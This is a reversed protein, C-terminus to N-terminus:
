RRINFHIEYKSKDDGAFPFFKRGREFVSPDSERFTKKLYKYLDFGERLNTFYAEEGHQVKFPLYVHFRDQVGGKDPKDIQHGSTTHIIYAYNEFKDKAEDITLSGDDYDLMIGFVGEYNKTEGHGTYGEKSESLLPSGFKNNSYVHNQFLDTLTQQDDINDLDFSQVRFATKNNGESKLRITADNVSINIKKM